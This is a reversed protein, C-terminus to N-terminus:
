MLAIGAVTLAPSAIFAGETVYLSIRTSMERQAPTAQALKEETQPNLHIQNDVVQQIGIRSLVVAFLIYTVVAILILPLWWSRNGRKVDEFTKSPATFTNAVRQWQSLGTAGAMSQVEMESM